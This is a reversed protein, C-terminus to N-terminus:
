RKREPSNPPSHITSMQLANLARRLDPSSPQQAQQQHEEEASRLFSKFSISPSVPQSLFARLRRDTEEMDVDGPTRSGESRGTIDDFDEDEYSTTPSSHGSGKEDSSSLLTEGPGLSSRQAPSLATPEYMSRIPLHLATRGRVLRPVAVANPFDGSRSRRHYLGYESRTSSARRRRKSGYDRNKMISAATTNNVARELDLETAVTNRIRDLMPWTAREGHQTAKKMFEHSPNALIELPKVWDIDPLITIDGNYKQTVVSHLVKLLFPDWHEIVSDLIFMLNTKSLTVMHRLLASDQVQERHEKPLFLQVHPNVQCAIFNNVNFLRELTASPLDGQISGDIYKHTLHGWPEIAGTVPNKSKLGPAEFVFPLACSSAVATWIVVHPSTVYNLLRPVNHKDKCSVHINLVMQTLNYAEKFTIDGLLNRMVRCLNTVRFAHEGKVLNVSAGIWGPMEEDSQFVKLDGSQLEELKSLIVDRKHTCLVSGVISGASAGCVISPLLGEEILAKVVGIHCMGLTGGGSLMLATKGFAARAQKLTQNFRKVDAAPDRECYDVLQEIAYSVVDTYEDISYKTGIRCHQYLNSNCMGGLDRKLHNRIHYLVAEMDKENLAQKLEKLRATVLDYDYDHEEQKENEIRWDHAGELFDLEKARTWWEQYTTAASLRAELITKAEEAKNAFVPQPQPRTTSRVTDLLDEAMQFPAYTATSLSPLWQSTKRKLTRGWSKEPSGKRVNDGRHESTSSASCTIWAM